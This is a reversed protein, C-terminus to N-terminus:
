EVDLIAIYAEWCTPGPKLLFGIVAVIVLGMGIDATAARQRILGQSRARKARMLPFGVVGLSKRVPRGHEPSDVPM